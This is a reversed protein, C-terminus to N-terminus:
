KMRVLEVNDLIAYSCIVDEMKQEIEQMDVPIGLKNYIEMNSKHLSIKKDSDQILKEM